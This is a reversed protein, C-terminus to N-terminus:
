YKWAYDSVGNYKLSSLLTRHRNNINAPVIRQGTRDIAPEQRLSYKWSSDVVPIEVPIVDKANDKTEEQMMLDPLDFEIGNTNTVSASNNTEAAINGIKTDNVRSIPAEMPIYRTANATRRFGESGCRTSLRSHEDSLKCALSDMDMRRLSPLKPHYLCEKVATLKYIRSGSVTNTACVSAIMIAGCINVADGFRNSINYIFLKNFYKCKRQDCTVYFSTNIKNCSTAMTILIM